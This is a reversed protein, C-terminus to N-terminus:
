KEREKRTRGGDEKKKGGRRGIEGRKKGNRERGGKM